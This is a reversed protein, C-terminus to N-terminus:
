VKGNSDEETDLGMLEERRVTNIRKQINEAHALLVQVRGKFSLYHLKLVELAWVPLQTDQNPDLSCKSLCYNMNAIALEDTHHKKYSPSTCYRVIPNEKLPYAM